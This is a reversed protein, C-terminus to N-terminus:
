QSKKEQNLDYGYFNLFFNIWIYTVPLPPGIALIVFSGGLCYLQDNENNCDMWETFIIGM